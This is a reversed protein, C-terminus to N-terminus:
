NLFICRVCESFRHRARWACEWSAKAVGVSRATGRTRLEFNLGSAQSPHAVFIEQLVYVKLVQENQELNQETFSCGVMKRSHKTLENISIQPGM